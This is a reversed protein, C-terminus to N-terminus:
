LRSAATKYGRTYAKHQLVDVYKIKSKAKSVVKKDVFLRVMFGAIFALLILLYLM